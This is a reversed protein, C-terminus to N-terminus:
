KGFNIEGIGGVLKPKSENMDIVVGQNCSCTLTQCIQHGVRGRRTKSNPQELNISDGWYSNFIRTKTAERVRIHDKHIEIFSDIIIM